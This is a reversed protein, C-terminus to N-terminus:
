PLIIGCIQKKSYVGNFIGTYIYIIFILFDEVFWYFSETSHLVLNVSRSDIM